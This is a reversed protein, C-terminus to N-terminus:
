TGSLSPASGASELLGDATPSFALRSARFVADEFRAQQRASATDWLRVTRDDGATAVTHGDASLAVALVKGRHGQLVAQQHWAADFLWTTGDRAAVALVKGDPSLASV